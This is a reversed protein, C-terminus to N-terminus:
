LNSTELQKLAESEALDEECIVGVAVADFLNGYYDREWATTRLYYRKLEPFRATLVEATERRTARGTQCLRKRVTVPAYECIPLNSEKAVAKIQEAIVALLAYSQRTILMKEIALHAPRYKKVLNRIHSSIANLITQPNKRNTVTKIGYFLLEGNQIVAVGLERTGPAIALIISSLKSM